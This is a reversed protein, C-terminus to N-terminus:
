RTRGLIRTRVESTLQKYEDDDRYWARRGARPLGARPLRGTLPRYWTTLPIERVVYVVHPRRSPPLGALARSIDAATLKARTRQTVAAVVLEGAGACVGYAVALDVADLDGLAEAIPLSPVPGDATRAVSRADDVLWFDGDLDQCFLDGTSLWADDREFVGRLPSGASSVVGRRQRALLMGEEGRPCEIAFGDGGDLLRGQEVDFAAIRVEASGPLPRGKAGPKTDAVNVLVAEGEASVYFELVRAPAFRQEVRRWLGRPMGAGIFLRLPHHRESPDPAREVLERLMTWTYSGVTVGYRRVEEWYREPDFREALALRAGGALAGGISMLLGSPHYIPTVAYVTDADSLAASSATGFASLAWRGNTVRNCRTREGEGTFLVFALESARGPNPRYWAPIRVAGPDIREMDVLGDGLDRPAGGGGLVLVGQPSPLAFERARDALQPDTIVRTCQGLELERDVAGDPRLLVGVAGVRNLAAVIVLASPRTHMLVGVHEGHRVGLSLLGRVVNDIREKVAGHTYARDGFLFAVAEPSDQAQEDLLLGVSIRTSPELRELRTLRPLQRTAHQTVLRTMDAARSATQLASRAVGMGVGAVLEIGFGVRTGVPPAPDPEDDDILRVQDPLDAGEDRWQVWDAVVPWTTQSATSGVVLGFHGARLALEYVDARPAARRVARVARPPAIEDVEGVVTLVPLTVDALTVLRGDIVFGGSLMRNHTVFQHIFDALAPGPWAVWGRAELFQRQRERPLLSERDHLAMVFDLQQRLSKVPDLLRFGLRSAWAPLAYRSLVHEALFGAGRVAIEEPIGFPLAGLTDVPAGFTILSALGENRRYAATQYCFMGGQSYGGLHVDRGTIERVQDVADSVAVVHDTLTRELGGQEHEPAGFDVVWPDAGHERLTAVGSSSASVDYVDAALMMPPILLVPPGASAGNAEPPFYRRLRYIPGQAAVVYPSAEEDTQLGGFRAVELANQAAAGVRAAPRIVLDSLLSM